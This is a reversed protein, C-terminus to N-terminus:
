DSARLHARYLQRFADPQDDHVPHAADLVIVRGNLVGAALFHQANRAPNLTDREGLLMMLPMTINPALSVAVDGGSDVLMITARQWARAFADADDIQHRAIDDASIWQSGRSYNQVVVRVQPDFYGTSGITAVTVCRQPQTGAMILAVEGGDSYGLIHAREIALADMFALMDQADRKYFQYPFDRPKPESEGYGRLTPAIVPYGEDALWDLVAGLDKRGTGLLGHIAIVPVRDATPNLHEYHLRAGTAIDIFPM